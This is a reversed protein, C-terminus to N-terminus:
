IRRLPHTMKTSSSLRLWDGCLSRSESGREYKSIPIDRGLGSPYNQRGSGGKRQPALRRLALEQSKQLIGPTLQRSKIFFHHSEEHNGDHAPCPFENVLDKSFLRATNPFRSPHLPSRLLEGGELYPQSCVLSDCFRLCLCWPTSARLSLSIRTRANRKTRAHSTKSRAWDRRV